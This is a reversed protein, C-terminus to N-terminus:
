KPPSTSAYFVPVSCDGIPWAWLMFRGLEKGGRPTWRFGLLLVRDGKLSATAAYVPLTEYPVSTRVTRACDAIQRGVAVDAQAQLDRLPELPENAESRSEDTGASEEGQADATTGFSTSGAARLFRRRRVDRSLSKVTVTGIDGAYFASPAGEPDRIEQAAEGAQGEAEDTSTASGGGDGGSTDMEFGSGWGFLTAGAVILALTAAGALAPAFRVWLPRRGPVVITEQQQEADVERAIAAHLRNREAPALPEVAAAGLLELGALEQACAECTRLHDRVAETQEHGLEGREYRPLLESCRAHDMEDEM